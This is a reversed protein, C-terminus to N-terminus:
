LSATADVYFQDIRIFKGGAILYKKSKLKFLFVSVIDAMTVSFFSFTCIVSRIAAHLDYCAVSRSRLIMMTHQTKTNQIAFGSLSRGFYCEANLTSTCHKKSIKAMTLILNPEQRFQLDSHDNPAPFFPSLFDPLILRCLWGHANRILVQSCFACFLKGRSSLRHTSMSYLIIHIM